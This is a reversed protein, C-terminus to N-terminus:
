IVEKSICASGKWWVCWQNDESAKQIWGINSHELVIVLVGEEQTKGTNTTHEGNYITNKCHNKTHSQYKTQKM